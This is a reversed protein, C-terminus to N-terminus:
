VQQWQADDFVIQVGITGEARNAWTFLTTDDPCNLNTSRSVGRHVGYARHTTTSYVAAGSDGRCGRYDAVAYHAADPDTDEVTSDWTTVRGCNTMPRGNLVSGAGTMCVVAGELAPGPLSVQSRILYSNPTTITATGLPGQSTWGPRLVGVYDKWTNWDDIGVFAVDRGDQNNLGEVLVRGYAVDNGDHRILANLAFCHAATMFGDRNTIFQRSRFASTCISTGDTIATGGRTPTCSDAPFSCLQDGVEQPVSAVEDISFVGPPIADPASGNPAQAIATFLETYLSEEPTTIVVRNHEIDVATRFGDTEVRSSKLFAAREQPPVDGMQAAIDARVHGTARDRYRTLDALSYRVDHAVAHAPLGSRALAARQAEGKVNIHLTGGDADDLWAGAWLAEPTTEFLHEVLLEDEGERLMRDIAQDTTLGYTEKFNLVAPDDRPIAERPTLDLPDPKFPEPM